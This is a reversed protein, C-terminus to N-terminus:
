PGGLQVWERRECKATRAAGHGMLLSGGDGGQGCALDGSPGPERFCGRSDRAGGRRREAEVAGDDVPM